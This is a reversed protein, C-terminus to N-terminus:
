CLKVIVSYTKPHISESDLPDFNSSIYVKGYENSLKSYALTSMIDNPSLIYTALFRTNDANNFVINSKAKVTAVTLWRSNRFLSIDMNEQVGGKLFSNIATSMATLEKQKWHELNSVIKNNASSTRPEQQRVSGKGDELICLTQITLPNVIYLKAAEKPSVFSDRGDDYRGPCFLYYRHHAKAYSIAKNDKFIHSTQKNVIRELKELCGNAFGSKAHFVNLAPLVVTLFPGPYLKKNEITFGSTSVIHGYKINSSEPWIGSEIRSGDFSLRAQCPHYFADTRYNRVPYNCEDMTKIKKLLEDNVLKKFLTKPFFHISITYKEGKIKFRQSIIDARDENFLRKYENVRKLFIKKDDLYLAKAKRFNNWSSKNFFSDNQIFILDIDSYDNNVHDNRVGLFPVYSMSGGLIISDITDGFINPLEELVRFRNFTPDISDIVAPQKKGCLVFKSSVLCRPIDRISFIKKVEKEFKKRTRLDKGHAVAYYAQECIAAIWGSFVREEFDTGTFTSFENLFDSLQQSWNKADLTSRIDCFLEYARDIKKVSTKSSM